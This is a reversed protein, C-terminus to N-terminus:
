KNTLAIDPSETFFTGRTGVVALKEPFCSLFTETVKAKCVQRKEVRLSKYVVAIRIYVTKNQLFAFHAAASCSTKSFISFTVRKIFNERELHNIGVILM